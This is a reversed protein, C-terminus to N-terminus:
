TRTQIKGYHSPVEVCTALWKSLQEGGKAHAVDSGPMTLTMVVQAQACLHPVLLVQGAQHGARPRQGRHRARGGRRGGRIRAPLDGQWLRHDHPLAAAAQAAGAGPQAGGPDDAHLLHSRRAAFAAAVGRAEACSRLCEPILAASSSLSMYVDFAGVSDPMIMLSGSFYVADFKTETERQQQKGDSGQQTQQTQQAPLGKFDYFSQHVVACQSDLKHRAFLAACRRVYDADYDVGVVRLKKQQLLDRNNVLASGTGIGVDLISSGEDVRSLVAKYWKSTMKVIVFDYLPARVLQLGIALLALVGLLYLWWMPIVIIFDACRAGVPALVTLRWLRMRACSSRRLSCAM